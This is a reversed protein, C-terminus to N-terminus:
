GAAARTASHVAGDPPEHRPNRVALHRSPNRASDLPCLTRLPRGLSLGFPSWVLLLPFIRDCLPLPALLGVAAAEAAAAARAHVPIMAQTRKADPTKLLHCEDAIIVGILGALDSRTPRIAGYTGASGAPPPQQQQQQQKRKQQQQQQQAKQAKQAKQTRQVFRAVVDYSAVCVMNCCQIGDSDSGAGSAAGTNVWGRLTQASSGGDCRSTKRRKATKGGSDDAALGAERNHCQTM